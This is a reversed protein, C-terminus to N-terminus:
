VLAGGSFSFFSLFFSSAAFAISLGFVIQILRRFGGSTEGFALTLGTVTIIIVSIIKAVPGQVSDLIQELPTEWPMSSGSAYAAPALALTMVTISGVTALHRRTRLAFRTM